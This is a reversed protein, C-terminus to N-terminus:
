RTSLASAESRPPPQDDATPPAADGFSGFAVWLEGALYRTRPTDKAAHVRLYDNFLKGDPSTREEPHRLNMTLPAVGQSGMHVLHITGDREVSEVIAVHSLPDDALGNHNRDYTDDFFAVDGPAPRHRRHLVGRARAEEFLMASSGKFACGASALSAEVLGSCDWRFPEGDV